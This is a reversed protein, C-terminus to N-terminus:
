VMASGLGMQNLFKRPGVRRKSKDINCQIRKIDLIIVNAQEATKKLLQNTENQRLLKSIRM